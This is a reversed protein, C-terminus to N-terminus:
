ALPQSDMPRPSQQSLPFAHRPSETGNCVIRGCLKIAVCPKFPFRLKSVVSRIGVMRGYTMQIGELRM